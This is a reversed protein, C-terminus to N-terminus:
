QSAAQISDTTNSYTSPSASDNPHRKSVTGYGKDGDGSHTANWYTSSTTSRSFFSKSAPNKSANTTMIYVIMGKPLSSVFREKAYRRALDPGRTGIHPHIKELARVPQRTRRPRRTQGARIGVRVRLVATDGGTRPRFVQEDVGRGETTLGVLRPAIVRVVEDFAVRTRRHHLALVKRGAAIGVGERCRAVVPAVPVSREHLALLFTLDFERAALVLKFTEGPHVVTEATVLLLQRYPVAHLTRPTKLVVMHEQPGHLVVAVTRHVRPDDRTCRVSLLLDDERVV